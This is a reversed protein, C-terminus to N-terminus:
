WEWEKDEWETLVLAGGDLIRDDGQEAMQQFQKDWERRRAPASRLIPPDAEVEAQMEGSLRTTVTTTM